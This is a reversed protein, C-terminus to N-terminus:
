RDTAQNYCIKHIVGYHNWLTGRGNVEIVDVEPWRCPHALAGTYVVALDGAFQLVFCECVEVSKGLLADDAALAFAYSQDEQFLRLFLIYRIFAKNKVRKM